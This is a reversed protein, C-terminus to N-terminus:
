AKEISGDYLSIMKAKVIKIKTEAMAKMKECDM